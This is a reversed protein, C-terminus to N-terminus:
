PAARWQLGAFVGRGDGPLFYRGDVGRGDAVVGTTAIWARDQLNRADVFWSWGAGIQGGVKVGAVVYGPARVTNAHDIYYDEPAWEVSPAVYFEDSRSWRLQARLQHRPLGALDNSGFVPDRDFSFDNLLYNLQWDWANRWRGSAGLEVGQHITRKANITGLPNGLADSLSLLEGDIRARYLVLDVALRSTAHRLGVEVSRAKQQDVPTVGPGGTLEGFSPPERSGSVNGFLETDASVLWRLGLKPSFGTYDVDLSEDRGGTIVQDVSQRGARFVQVGVTAVWRDTLWTQSEGYAKLTTAQQDFGNVRAGPRGALNLLREDDVENQAASLGLVWVQRRDGWTGESRWRADLGYDVSDQRIVQFIPHDLSKDSVYGSIALTRDAGPAWAVTGTLRTLTFDRRQDLAVSAPAAARPDADFEARTLSGPLESRTDVHTLYARAFWDDALQGGTNAFLRFTEQRAHDRYGDQAMGSVSLFGDARHGLRAWAVQGRRYGFAGGELRAQMAPADQGTYSVFNIAGGLNAAGFELANPGRYVEIYRAALPEVSQFDFGGDALNLPSGDQLLELGRGHFTRQLGSGRISLRAEEAGFRPQIFVGAAFGLADALTSTRGDRYQESDVLGTGGAREALRTRAQELSARTPDAPPVGEVEVADLVTPEDQARGSTPLLLSLVAASAAALTHSRM